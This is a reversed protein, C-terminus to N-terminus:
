SHDRNEELSLSLQEGANASSDNAIAHRIMREIDKSFRVPIISIGPHERRWVRFIEDAFAQGIETIGDFDLMVESFREVRKLLRRAQSRSVLTEGEYKALRLPVHTRLFKFDDDIYKEFVEKVTHASTLAIEMMVVTGQAFSDGKKAEVLWDDDDKKSRTYTMDGSMIAFKDFMRSTFFIGEGTHKSSDTTLKGKSLELIAEHKDTLNCEKTIKEFIGVGLDQVVLTLEAYNRTYYLRCSKSDSHDIANNLMENFGYDCIALINEPLTKLRPYFIDRWVIDEQTAETLELEYAFQELPKLKYVRARTKGTSTLLGEDVLTRLYGNVSARSMGFHQAAFTAIDPGHDQVNHLIFERMDANKPRAM